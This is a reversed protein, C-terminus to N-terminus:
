RVIVISGNATIDIIKKNVRPFTMFCGRSWFPLIFPHFVIRRDYANDNVGPELGRIRMGVKFKGSGMSSRYSDLTLFTGKCSLESGPKNSFKRVYVIGSKWAHSVHANLIAKQNKLEIVWLRKSFVPKHYDILIAYAPHGFIDKHKQIEGEVLKVMDDNPRGPLTMSIVLSVIILLLVICYKKSNLVVIM